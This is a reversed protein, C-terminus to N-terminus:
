YDCVSLLLGSALHSKRIGKKNNPGTFPLDWTLKGYGPHRSTYNYYFTQVEKGGQGSKSLVCPQEIAAGTHCAFLQQGNLTANDSKLELFFGKSQIAITASIFLAIANILFSINTARM